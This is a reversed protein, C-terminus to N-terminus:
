RPALAQIVDFYYRGLRSDRKTLARRRSIIYSQAPDGPATKPLNLQWASIQPQFPEIGAPGTRIGFILM